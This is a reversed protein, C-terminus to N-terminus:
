IDASNSPRAQKKLSIKLLLESSLKSKIKDILYYHDLWKILNHKKRIHHKEEFSKKLHVSSMGGMRFNVFPREEAYFVTDGLWWRLMLDWDAAVQYQTDFLGLRDYLSKRAFLTPHNILMGKTFTDLEEPAPIVIPEGRDQLVKMASHIADAGSVELIEVAREVAGPEYWDDANIIGVIDGGAAEIGKNMADYIGKDPESVWYRINKEYKEIIDLSSDTSGGDIIIYEINPYSQGIVSKITQELYTEGDLVVTIISVKPYKNSRKM